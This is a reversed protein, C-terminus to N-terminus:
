FENLSNLLMAVFPQVLAVRYNLELVHFGLVLEKGRVQPDEPELIPLVEDLHIVDVELSYDVYIVTVFVPTDVLQDLKKLALEFCLYFCPVFPAENSAINHRQNAVTVVFGQM